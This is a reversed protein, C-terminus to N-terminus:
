IYSRSRKNQPVRTQYPPSLMIDNGQIGYCYATFFENKCTMQLHPDPVSPKLNM